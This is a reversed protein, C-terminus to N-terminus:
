KVITAFQDLHDDVYHAVVNTSEEEIEFFDEEMEDFFKLIWM